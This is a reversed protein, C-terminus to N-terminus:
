EQARCGLLDVVRLVTIARVVMPVNRMRTGGSIESAVTIQARPRALKTKPDPCSVKNRDDFKKLMRSEQQM